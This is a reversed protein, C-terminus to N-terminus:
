WVVKISENKLFTKLTYLSDKNLLLIYLKLNSVDEQKFHSWLSM